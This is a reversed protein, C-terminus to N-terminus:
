VFICFSNTGEVQLLHAAPDTVDDRSEWNKIAEVLDRNQLSDLPKIESGQFVMDAVNHEADSFNEM